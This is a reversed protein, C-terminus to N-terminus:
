SIHLSYVGFMGVPVLKQPKGTSNHKNIIEQLSLLEDYSLTKGTYRIVDKSDDTNEVITVGFSELAEIMQSKLSDM